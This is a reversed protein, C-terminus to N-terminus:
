AIQGAGGGNGTGLLRGNWNQLPLWVEVGINSDPTPAAAIQVRCFAPLGAARITLDAAFPSSPRQLAGAAVPAASTIQAGSLSAHALAACDVPTPAASAPASISALGAFAVGVLM